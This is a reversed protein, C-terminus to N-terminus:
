SPNLSRICQRPAQKLGYLSKKLRCVLHEKNPEEYGKPQEMYIEEKIDEHLFTIKVDLQEVELNLSATICFVVRISSYKVVLSFIEDFDVEKKQNCGKV